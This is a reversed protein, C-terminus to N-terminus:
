PSWNPGRYVFLFPPNKQIRLVAFGTGRRLFRKYIAIRALKLQQYDNFPVALAHRSDTQELRKVLDRYLDDWEHNTHRGAPVDATKVEAIQGWPRDSSGNPSHPIVAYDDPDTGGVAKKRGM